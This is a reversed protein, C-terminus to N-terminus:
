PTGIINLYLFFLGGLVCAVPILFAAFDYIVFKEPQAPDYYIEIVDGPKFLNSRRSYRESMKQGTVTTYSIVPYPIDEDGWKDNDYEVHTVTGTAKEGKSRMRLIRAFMFVGIGLIAGNFIYGLLFSNAM